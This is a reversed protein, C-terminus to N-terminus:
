SYILLMVLLAIGVAALSMAARIRFSGRGIMLAILTKVVTNSLVGAVFAKAAVATDPGPQRAIMFTLTDVDTMGVLISSLITGSAGFHSTAWKAIYLAAQFGIAMPIASRLQLPNRPSEKSAGAEKEKFAFISLVVGVLFAAIFYPAAAIAITRNMLLMLVAVRVFLVTSAAVVGATLAGAIEPQSRSEKSFNLTVLTSSVLGGLLGAIRYGREASTLKRIIYAAFSLGSFLLVFAWLERPRIGPDPGFPGKPLLPLVVLALVAFRLGASLEESKLRFVLSHIRSKEMLILALFANIASAMALEGNGALAGAALVLIAAFETTSERDGKYAASSYAAVILLAAAVLVAIGLAPFGVLILHVSLAGLLGILVFTRVGAFRPRESAARGSWEREIGVALGGLAAVALSIAFQIEDPKM